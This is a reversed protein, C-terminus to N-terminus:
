RRHVDQKQRTSDSREQLRRWDSHGCRPCTHIEEIGAPIGEEGYVYKEAHQNMEGGCESCIMKEPM